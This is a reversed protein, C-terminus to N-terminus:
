RLSWLYDLGTDSDKADIGVTFLQKHDASIAYVWARVGGAFPMSFVHTRTAADWLELGTSKEGETALVKGDPSYQWGRQAAWRADHPTVNAGTAADWLTIPAGKAFVVVQKGDPSLGPFAPIAGKVPAQYTYQFTGKLQQTVTDWVYMHGDAGAVGAVSGDASIDDGVIASAGPQALTATQQGSGVDWVDIAHGSAAEVLLKSGDGSLSTTGFVAAWTKEPSGVTLIATRKGTALDWRYVQVPSPSPYSRIAMETVSQDDASVVPNSASVYDSPLALTSLHKRSATDWVFFGDVTSKNNFEDTVLLKGDQSFAAEATNYGPVRMPAIMTAMAFSLAHQQGGGDGGPPKPPSGSLAVGAGIGAAALVAASLGAILGTKRRPRSAAPVGIPYPPRGAQGPAGGPPAM